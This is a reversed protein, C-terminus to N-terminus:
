VPHVHAAGCVPNGAEFEKQVSGRYNEYRFLASLWETDGILKQVIDSVINIVSFLIMEGRSFKIEM